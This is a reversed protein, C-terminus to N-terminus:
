RSAEADIVDCWQSLAYGATGIKIEHKPEFSSLLAKLARMAKRGDIDAKWRLGHEALSGGKFFLSQATHTFRNRDDYFDAGMQERTLYASQPAGMVVTVDDFEPVPFPHAEQGQSLM